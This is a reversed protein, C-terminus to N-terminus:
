LTIEMKSLLQINNVDSYSYQYLGESTVVLAVGNMAIVDYTEMGRITTILKLNNVQKTNYVRLGSAGDCVFLLDGDKSLGHPNDLSYTKVLSPHQIDSIDLIDMRNTFGNCTTGSRLTVYAYKEDAIVPDCSQVHSFQGEYNPNSGNSISYIFMGNSSGIFLKNQFPYITEINWGLNIKKIYSPTQPSGIGFVNLDSTTVSYLHNGAIAFRAMSGGAGFPSPSAGNSSTSKGGSNSYSALALVDNQMLVQTKDFDVGFFGGNGCDMNVTTDRKVWDVIVKSTDAYFSGYYQRFPFASEIISTTKVHLPDTIDITILDTYADAYLTNGKVAMDMNGPINIFAVNNPSAPNINDIIHIGQDPENLFIYRGRIYLKGVREIQQPTNSKINARVEETTKYVPNFYSYTQTCHDKICGQLLVISIILVAPTFKKQLM